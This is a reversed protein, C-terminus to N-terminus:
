KDNWPSLAKDRYIKIPIYKIMKDYNLNYFRAIILENQIEYDDKM